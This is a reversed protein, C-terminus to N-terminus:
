SFVSVFGTETVNPKRSIKLEPHHAFDIFGSIIDATQVVFLRMM